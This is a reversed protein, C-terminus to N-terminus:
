ACELRKSPTQVAKNVAPSTLKSAVTQGAVAGEVAWDALHNISCFICRCVTNKVSDRMKSILRHLHRLHKKCSHLKCWETSWLEGGSRM